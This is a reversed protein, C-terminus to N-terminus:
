VYQYALQAIQQTKALDAYFRVGGADATTYPDTVNVVDSGALRLTLISGNGVGM